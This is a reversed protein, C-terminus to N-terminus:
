HLSAGIAEMIQPYNTVTSKIVREGLLISIHLISLSSNFGLFIINKTSFGKFASNTIGLRDPRDM